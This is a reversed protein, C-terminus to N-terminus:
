FRLYLAAHLFKGIQNNVITYIFVEIVYFTSSECGTELKLFICNYVLHVAWPLNTKLLSPLLGRLLLLYLAEDAYMYVVWPM